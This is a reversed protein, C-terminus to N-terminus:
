ATKAKVVAAVIGKRKTLTELKSAVRLTLKRRGSKLDFVYSDSVGIRRALETPTIDLDRIIDNIDM